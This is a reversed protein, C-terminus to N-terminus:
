ICGQGDHILMCTSLRSGYVADHVETRPPSVPPHPHSQHFKQVHHSTAQRGHAVQPLVQVPARACRRTNEQKSRRHRQHWRATAGSCSSSCSSDCSRLAAQIRVFAISAISPGSKIAICCLPNALRRVASTCCTEVLRFPSHAQTSSFCYRRGDFQRM